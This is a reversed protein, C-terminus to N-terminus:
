TRFEPVATPVNTIDRPIPSIPTQFKGGESGSRVRVAGRPEFGARHPATIPPLAVTGRIPVNM